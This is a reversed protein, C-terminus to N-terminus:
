KIDQTSIKECWKLIYEVTFYMASLLSGHALPSNPGNVMFFNPMNPVVTGFYAEPHDKWQDALKIGDKGQMDWSPCFSVDFGTACIIIDFPQEESDKQTKIGSAGIAEIPSLELSVNKAQIATLYSDGPSLRRCGVEFKPILKECLWPDHNLREAMQKTFLAHAGVQQPSGKLLSYFLQNFAHEIRHRLDHLQEPNEEFNNRSAEDYDFNVGEPTFESAFNSSIWLPSRVFNVVSAATPQIEPLLQVASSGNGIIAVRKNAWDLDPKWAASHLLTGGFTHLGKIQPWSWKNLFGAGSILIDADTELISLDNKQIRLHWKGAVDDWISSLVKSNVQVDRELNYKQSTKKIYAWIEPGSAYFRTWHPNPEFPFTYIHAPVDCAVGPYTNELWTGGIDANKEYITLDIFQSMPNPGHQHDYALMLGSFGGGICVVKLKRPKNLPSELIPVWNTPKVGFAVGNSEM